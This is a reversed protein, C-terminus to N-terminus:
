RTLAELANGLKTVDLKGSELLRAVVASGTIVAQMTRTMPDSGWILTLNHVVEDFQSTQTSQTLDLLLDSRM